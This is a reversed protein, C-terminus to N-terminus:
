FFNKNLFYKCYSLPVSLSGSSCSTKDEDTNSGLVVITNEQKVGGSLDPIHKNEFEMPRLVNEALFQDITRSNNGNSLSSSTSSLNEPGRRFSQSIIEESRRSVDFSEPSRAIKNNNKKQSDRRQTLLVNYSISSPTNLDSLSSCAGVSSDCSDKARMVLQNLQFQLSNTGFSNLSNYQRTKLFNTFLESDLFKM